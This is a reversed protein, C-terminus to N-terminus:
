FHLCLFDDIAINQFKQYYNNYVVEQKQVRIEEEFKVNNSRSTIKFMQFKCHRKFTFNQSVDNFIWDVPFKDKQILFGTSIEIHSDM